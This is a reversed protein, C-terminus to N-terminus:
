QATGGGIIPEDLPRACALPVVRSIVLPRADAKTATPDEMELRISIATPLVDGTQTSDWDNLWSFGDFYQVSFSRVNRCIIEEDPVPATPALLNRTVQRVLVPPQVDTRLVLDVKRIGESLPTEVGPQAQDHGICFFEMTDANGAGSPLRHGIFAGRFNGNPPLVGQLDQTMMEAAISASRAPEVANVAVTKARTAVFMATYLTALLIAAVSMAVVIELLTFGRRLSRTPRPRAIM